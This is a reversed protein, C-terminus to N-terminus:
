TLSRKVRFTYTRKLTYIGVISGDKDDPIQDVDRVAILFIEDGDAETYALIEKPPKSKM